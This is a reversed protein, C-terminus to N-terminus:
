LCKIHDYSYILPDVNIGFPEKEKRKYCKLGEHRWGEKVINQKNVLDALQIRICNFIAIYNTKTKRTVFISVGKLVVTIIM